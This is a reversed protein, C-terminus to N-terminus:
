LDLKKIFEMFIAGSIFAYITNDIPLIQPQYYIMLFPVAFFVASVVFKMLGKSIKSYKDGLFMGRLLGVIFILVVLIDFYLDHEWFGLLFLGGLYFYINSIAFSILVGALFGLILHPIQAYWAYFLSLLLIALMVLKYFFVFYKKGSVLEEKVFRAIFIGVLLSLFTLLAINFM